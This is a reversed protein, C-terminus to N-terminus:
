SCKKNKGLGKVEWLVGGGEKGGGLLLKRSFCWVKKHELQM